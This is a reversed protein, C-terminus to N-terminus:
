ATSRRRNLYEAVQRETFRINRSGFGVRVCEIQGAEVIKYITRPSLGLRDAVARVNLLAGEDTRITPV